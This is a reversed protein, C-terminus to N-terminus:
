NDFGYFIAPTALAILVVINKCVPLAPEAGVFIQKPKFRVRFPRYRETLTASTTAFVFPYPFSPNHSLHSASKSERGVRVGSM